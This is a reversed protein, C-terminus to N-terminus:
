LSTQSILKAMHLIWQTITLVRRTLLSRFCSKGGRGTFGKDWNVDFFSQAVVTSMMTRTQQRHKPHDYGWDFEECQAILGESRQEYYAFIDTGAQNNLATKYQEDYQRQESCHGNEAMNPIHTNNTEERDPSHSVKQPQNQRM